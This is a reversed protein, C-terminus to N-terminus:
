YVENGLQILRDLAIHEMLLRMDPFEDLVDLLDVKALCFLDVVSAAKVSAVRRAGTLMTIESIHFTIIIWKM